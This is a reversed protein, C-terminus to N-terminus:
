PCPFLADLAAVAAPVDVSEADTKGLERQLVDAQTADRARAERDLFPALTRAFGLRAEAGAENGCTLETLRQRVILAIGRIGARDFQARARVQLTADGAAVVGRTALDRWCRSALVGDYAREHTEPGLEKVYRAFGVPSARATGGSYYAWMSDCDRPSDACSTAESLSSVYLFWLLAAEIRAAQLRPSEGAAGRVFADNLIPLLKAPGVCYDPNASVVEAADQCRRGDAPKPYHIDVRRAVRSGLGEAEEYVVRADLFDQGSPIRGNRWLKDAIAEFANVRAITSISPDVPHFVNDDSICAPWADDASGNVRPQYDTALPACGTVNEAFRPPNPCDPVNTGGDGPPTPGASTDCASLALASCLLAARALRHM